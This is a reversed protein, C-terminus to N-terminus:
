DKALLKKALEHTSGAGLFFLVQNISAETKLINLIDEESPEFTVKELNIAEVLQRSNVLGTDIERSPYIDMIFTQDAPLKQFVKVFDNFLAHTRSFMHPQFIVTIKKDPFKEKAAGLTVKIETPHHAFDSYVGAGKFNGMYEFRRGIGSYNQLSKKIIEPDIGLALGVQYVASANLVNYQGPIKLPFDILNKSYDIIPASNKLGLALTQEVGSDSLNTIITGKTQDFFKKFSEKYEDFNKYTEPHDMEITTVIAIDAINYLLDRNFEDAEVVFYKGHGVRYNSGWSPVIAGVMVTPDLGADELMIGIMGTTTSKGHTGSVAIVFHGEELYKGMFEKWNLIPIGLKKAELLEPNKPDLSFIAPTVALIDVGTLHKPDHGEFLIDKDLTKTFNNYPSKDCGTVKFGTAQAIAAIASAGSGGIGLFHVKKITQSM